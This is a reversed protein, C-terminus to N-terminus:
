SNVGLEAAVARPTWARARALLLGALVYLGTAVLLAVQLGFHMGVLLIGTAGLVSATGNVAFGWDVLAGVRLAGKPFPMGMFFGLPGVLLAAAVLRAPLGLSGLAASAYHLAFTELLLAALLGAFALPASIRRSFYSGVSSSILLTLLITAICYASPGVFLTYKQILVVEVSMFAMGIAFFYL